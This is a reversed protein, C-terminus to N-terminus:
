QELLRKLKTDRPWATKIELFKIYQDTNNESTPAYVHMLDSISSEGTLGSSTIGQAKRMLDFCLAYFGVDDNYFYAFGNRTGLALPSSRLNGPNHNKFSMSEENKAGTKLNDPTWGEYEAIARALTIVNRGIM